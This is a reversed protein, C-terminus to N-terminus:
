SKKEDIGSSDYFNVISELRSQWYGLLYALKRTEGAYSIDQSVKRKLSYYETRIFNIAEKLAHIINIRKVSM